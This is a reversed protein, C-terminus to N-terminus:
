AAGPNRAQLGAMLAAECAEDADKVIDFSSTKKRRRDVTALRQFRRM